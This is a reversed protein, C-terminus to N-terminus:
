KGDKGATDFYEYAGLRYGASDEIAENIMELDFSDHVRSWKIPDPVLGMGKLFEFERHLMGQESLYDEPISPTTTIGLLGKHTLEAIERVTLFQKRGAFEQRAELNWSCAKLLNRKDRDMWSLARIQSALIMRAAEPHKKEFERAMYMYSTSLSRHIVAFGAHKQLAMTPFPEWAAFADIKGSALADAMEPVNLRVLRVENEGVGNLELTQLLAYHANSGFPYGIRKGRLDEVMMPEAAVLSTFGKKVLSVITIDDTAAATLAPMDGGMVVELDGRALYYNLDSGKLFSHFRIGLGKDALGKRLVLDRRMVEPIVGIPIGLPQIGIDIVNDEPWFEYKSYVPHNGLDISTAKLSEVKECGFILAAILLLLIISGDRIVNIVNIRIHNEIFYRYPM